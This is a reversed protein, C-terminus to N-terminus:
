LNGKKFIHNGTTIVDVGMRLINDSIEPTIGIGGAANEGNVIVVDAGVEAVIEGLGIELCKRGPNGIVDGM